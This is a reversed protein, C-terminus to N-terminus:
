RRFTVVETALGASGLEILRYGFIRTDTEANDRGIQYSVAPTLFQRIRGEVTEVDMHYHGAFVTVDSKAQQLLLKVSERGQLAASSRDLPTGVDLIPHHIFVIIQRDTELQEQLWSLQRESVANASSDMFIFRFPPSERAYFLEDGDGATELSYFPKVQAYTDHNGLILHLRVNTRSVCEFFYANALPTGIDGGFVIDEIRRAALDRLVTQFNERHALPDDAYPMKTATINGGAILQQGLHADTFHAFKRM